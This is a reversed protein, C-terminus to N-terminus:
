ENEDRKSEVSELLNSFLYNGFNSGLSTGFLIAFPLTSYALAFYGIAYILLGNTGFIVTPTVIFVIFYYIYFLYKKARYKDFISICFAVAFTILWSNLIFDLANNQLINM